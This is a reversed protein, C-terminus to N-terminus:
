AARAAPSQTADDCHSLLAPARLADAKPAQSTGTQGAPPLKAAPLLSVNWLEGQWARDNSFRNFPSM